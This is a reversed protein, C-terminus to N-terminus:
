HIHLDRQLMRVSGKPDHIKCGQEIELPVNFVLLELVVGLRM